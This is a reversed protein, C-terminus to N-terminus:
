GAIGATVTLGGTPGVTTGTWTYVAVGGPAIPGPTPDASLTLLLTNSSSAHVSLPTMPTLGTNKVTVSLVVIGQSVASFSPAGDSTSVGVTTVVTDTETEMIAVGQVTCSVQLGLDIVSCAQGGISAQTIVAQTPATVTTTTTTTTTSSTITLSASATLTYVAYGSGTLVAAVAVVILAFTLLRKQVSKPPGDGNPDQYDLRM